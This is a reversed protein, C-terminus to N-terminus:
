NQKNLLKYFDTEKKIWDRILLVRQNVEEIYTADINFDFRKIRLHNPLHSYTMDAKVEDYIEITPERLNLDRAKYWCHKDILFDPADNLTYIVAFKEAGYLSMYGQGQGYYIKSKLEKDFLPFSNESWSNKADIILNLEKALDIDCTGILFENEKTVENKVSNYGYIKNILEISEPECHNGKDTADSYFSFRRQYLVSKMWKIAEGKATESLHIEDKILRIDELEKEIKPLSEEVIKKATKTEKNAIGEYKEILSMKSDIAKNYKELNSLSVPNTMINGISSCHCKFEINNEM